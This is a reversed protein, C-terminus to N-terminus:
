LFKPSLLAHMYLSSYNSSLALFLSNAMEEYLSFKEVRRNIMEKNQRDLLFFFVLLLSFIDNARMQMREAEKESM